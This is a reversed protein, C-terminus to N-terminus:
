HSVMKPRQGLIPREEVVGPSVQFSASQYPRKIHTHPLTSADGQMAEIVDIEPSGRGRFPELGYHNVRNCASIEQPMRYREDCQNFSWPWIFDTSGVYTARALNGLMWLAPWLGGVDHRGPLKASFEVIGGTFCFKNWGQVMGTQIYKKDVYFRKRDEDFAKYENIKRETQIRLVGDKTVVNDHSYYHLAANTYDNKHIATWRPDEGDHFTRGDVNFEDSFVLKYDRKDGRTLPKTEHFYEPTDPDIWEPSSVGVMLAIFIIRRRLHCNVRRKQM